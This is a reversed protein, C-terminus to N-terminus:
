RRINFALLLTRQPPNGNDDSLLYLRVGDGRREAAIGEFNDTTGPLKLAILVPGLEGNPLMRRVQARADIPPAFSRQVVYWGDGVPNEDM